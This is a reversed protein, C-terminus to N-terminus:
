GGDGGSWDAAENRVLRIVDEERLAKVDVLWYPQVPPQGAEAQADLADWRAACAPCCSVMSTSVAEWAGTATHYRWARTLRPTGARDSHLYCMEGAAM